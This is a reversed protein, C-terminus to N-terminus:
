GDDDKDKDKEMSKTLQENLWRDEELPDAKWYDEKESSPMLLDKKKKLIWFITGM